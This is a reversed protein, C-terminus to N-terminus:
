IFIFKHRDEADVGVGGNGYWNSNIFVAKVTITAFIFVKVIGSVCIQKNSNTPLVM